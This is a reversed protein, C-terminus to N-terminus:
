EKREIVENIISNIVEEDDINENLWSKFEDIMETDITHEAMLEQVMSIVESPNDIYNWLIASSSEVYRLLSDEIIQSGNPIFPTSLLFIFLLCYVYAQVIGFIAGLLSNLQKIVPIKGITKFIPKVMLLLISTGIFIAFFWVIENSKELILANLYENGVDVNLFYSTLDITEAGLPALIYSVAFIVVTGILDILSLLFGKTGSRFACFVFIIIVFIDVQSLSELNFPM